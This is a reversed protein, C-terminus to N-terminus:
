RSRDEGAGDRVRTDEPAIAERGKVAASRASRTAAQEELVWGTGAADDLAGAGAAEDLSGGMGTRATDADAEASATDCADAAYSGPGDTSADPPVTSPAASRLRCMSRSPDSVEGTVTSRQSPGSSSPRRMQSATTGFRGAAVGTSRL